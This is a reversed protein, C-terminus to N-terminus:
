STEQKLLAHLGNLEEQINQLSTKASAIIALFAGKNVPPNIKAQQALGQSIRTKVNDVNRILLNQLSEIKALLEPHLGGLDSNLKKIKNALDNIYSDQDQVDNMRLNVLLLEEDMKGYKEEQAYKIANDLAAMARRSGRIASYIPRRLKALLHRMDGTEEQLIEQTNDKNELIRENLEKLEQALKTKEEKEAELEAQIKERAQIQAQSEQNASTVEEQLAKIRGATAENLETLRAEIEDKRRQAIEERREAEDIKRQLLEREENARQAVARMNGEAQQAKANAEAIERRFQEREDDTLRGRRIEDDLEQQLDIAKRREEDREQQAAALQDMAKRETEDKETLLTEKESQAQELQANARELEAELRGINVKAVELGQKERAYLQELQRRREEQAQSNALAQQLQRQLDQVRADAAVAEEQNQERREGLRRGANVAGEYAPMFLRNKIMVFIAGAVYIMAVIYLFELLGSIFDGFIAM